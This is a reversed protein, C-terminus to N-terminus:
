TSPSPEPDLTHVTNAGLVIGLFGDAVEVASLRGGRRFWQPLQNVMALLARLSLDRDAFQFDGTDEGRAFIDGLLREFEKRQERVERWQSGHALVHREQQFVLVHDHNREVHTVWTGMIERLQVRAPEDRAVVERVTELLPDMLEYCIQVLLEDKSGIYHYLGGAKLGTADVLDQISTAHFGKSAFVGAAADIVARRRLDYRARLVPSDPPSVM